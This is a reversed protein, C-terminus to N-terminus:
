LEFNCFGPHKPSQRLYQKPCIIEIESTNINESLKERYDIKVFTVLIASQAEWRM